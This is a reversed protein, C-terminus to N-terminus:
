SRIAPMRLAIVAPINASKQAAVRSLQACPLADDDYLHMLAEVSRQYRRLIFAGFLLIGAARALPCAHSGVQCDIPHATRNGSLRVRRQEVHQAVVELEVAGFEAAAQRLAASARHQDIALRDTGADRRDARYRSALDRRDFAEARWAFQVRQLLGEDVLLGGLAAVADVAHNHRRFLQEVAVRSRALLVHARRESAVKAAATRMM